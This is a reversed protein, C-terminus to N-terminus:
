LGHSVLAAALEWSRSRGILPRARAYKHRESATHMLSSGCVCVSTLVDPMNQVKVIFILIRNFVFLSSHLDSSFSLLRFNINRVGSEAKGPDFRGTVIGWM